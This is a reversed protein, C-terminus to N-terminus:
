EAVGGWRDVYYKVKHNTRIHKQIRSALYSRPESDDAGYKRADPMEMLKVMSNFIANAALSVPTGSAVMRDLEDLAVHLGTELLAAASEWGSITSYLQWPNNENM